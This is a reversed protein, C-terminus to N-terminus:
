KAGERERTLAQFTQGTEGLFRVIEDKKKERASRSIELQAVNYLPGLGYYGKGPDRRRIMEKFAEGSFEEDIRVSLGEEEGWHVARQFLWSRVKPQCLRGRRTGIELDPRKKKDKMGHILLHLTPRTCRGEEHEVLSLLRRFYETYAVLSKASIPRNLDADKRRRTAELCHTGYENAINRAIERTRYESKAHTAEVIVSPCTQAPIEKIYTM